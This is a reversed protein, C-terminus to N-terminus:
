GSYIASLGGEIWFKGMNRDAFDDDEGTTHTGSSAVDWDFFTGVFDFNLPSTGFDINVMVASAWIMMPMTSDDLDKSVILSM